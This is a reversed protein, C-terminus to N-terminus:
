DYRVPTQVGLEKFLAEWYWKMLGLKNQEMTGAPAWIHIVADKIATEQVELHQKIWVADTAAFKEATAKDKPAARGFDRRGPGQMSEVMDSIYIVYKRDDPRADGFFRSMVELTAWLDTHRATNNTNLDAMGKNISANCARKFGSKNANYAAIRDQRQIGGMNKLAKVDPCRERFVDNLFPAAGLTNHHIFQGYLRDGATETSDSVWSRLTKAHPEMKEAAQTISLTKDVLILTHKNYNKETCAIQDELTDNGCSPAVILAGAALLSQLKNWKGM